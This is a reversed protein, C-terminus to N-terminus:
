KITDLYAQLAELDFAEETGAALLMKDAGLDVLVRQTKAGTTRHSSTIKLAEVKAGRLTVEVTSRENDILNQVDIAPPNFGAQTLAGQFMGLFAWAMKQREGLPQGPPMTSSSLVLKDPEPASVIAVTMGMSSLDLSLHKNFDAPPAAGTANSFITSVKAPEVSLRSSAWGYTAIAGICCFLMFALCCGGCLKLALSGSSKPAPPADYPQQM